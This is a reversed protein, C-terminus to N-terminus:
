DDIWIAYQTAATRRILRGYSVTRDPLDSPWIRTAVFIGGPSVISTEVRYEFGWDWEKIDELLKNCDTELARSLIEVIQDINGIATARRRIYGARSRREFGVIPCNELVARVKAM